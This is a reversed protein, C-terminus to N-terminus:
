AVNIKLPKNEDDSTKLGNLTNDIFSNGIRDKSNIFLKLRFRLILENAREMKTPNNKKSEWKAVLSTDVGIKDAFVGQTDKMYLRIFRVESGTLSSQKTILARAVKDMLENHDIDLVEEDEFTIYKPNVIIIPFGLGHYTIKNM